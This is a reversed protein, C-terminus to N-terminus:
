LGVWMLIITYQQRNKIYCQIFMIECPCLCLSFILCLCTLILLLARQHILQAHCSRHSRKQQFESHATRSSPALILLMKESRLHPPLWQCHTIFTCSRTERHAMCACCFPLFSSSIMCVPPSHQLLPLTPCTCPDLLEENRLHNVTPPPHLAYAGRKASVFCFPTGRMILLCSLSRSSSCIAGQRALPHAGLQCFRFRSLSCFAAWRLPPPHHLGGPAKRCGNTVLLGRGFGKLNAWMERISSPCTIKGLAQSTRQEDRQTGKNPIHIPGTPPSLVSLLFQTM